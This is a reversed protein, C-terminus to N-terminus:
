MDFITTHLNQLINNFYNPNLNESENQIIKCKKILKGDSFYGKCTSGYNSTIIGNGYSKNNKYTGQFCNGFIDFLKIKGNLQNNVVEAICQTNNSTRIHIINSGIYTMYKLSKKYPIKCKTKYIKKYPKVYSKINTNQVM